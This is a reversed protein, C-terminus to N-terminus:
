KSEKGMRYARLIRDNASSYYEADSTAGNFMLARIERPLTEVKKLYAIRQWQFILNVAIHTRENVEPMLDLAKEWLSNAEEAPLKIPNNALWMLVPRVPELNTMGKFQDNFIREALLPDIDEIRVENM